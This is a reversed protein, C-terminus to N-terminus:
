ESNLYQGAFMHFHEAFLLVAVIFYLTNIINKIVCSQVITSTPETHTRAHTHASASAKHEIVGENSHSIM